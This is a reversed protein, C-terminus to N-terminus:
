GIPCVRSDAPPMGKCTTPWKRRSVRFPRSRRSSTISSTASGRRCPQSVCCTRILVCTSPAMIVILVSRVFPTCRIRAEEESRPMELALHLRSVAKQASTPSIQPM